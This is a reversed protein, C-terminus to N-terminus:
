FSQHFNLGFENKLITAIRRSIELNGKRTLHCYDYFNDDQGLQDLADSLEFFNYAALKEKRAQIKILTKKSLERLGLYKEYLKKESESLQKGTTYIDPQWIFIPTIGYEKSISSIARINHLYTEVIEDSIRDIADADKNSLSRLRGRAKSIRLRKM